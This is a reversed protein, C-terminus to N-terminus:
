QGHVVLLRAVGMFTPINKRFTKQEIPVQYIGQSFVFGDPELPNKLWGIGFDDNM